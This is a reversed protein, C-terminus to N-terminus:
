KRAKRLIIRGGDTVVPPLIKKLVNRVLRGNRRERTQRWYNDLAQSQVRRESIVFEYNHLIAEFVASSEGKPAAAMRRDFEKGLDLSHQTCFTLLYEVSARKFQKVKDESSRNKDQGPHFRVFIEPTPNVVISGLRTMELLMTRDNDYRNGSRLVEQWAHDMLERPGIMSSYSCPVDILCAVATDSRTLTWETEFSPFGAGVWFERTPHCHLLTREGGVMFYASYYCSLQGKTAFHSVGNQIHGPSWWDDDHLIAVYDNVAEKLLLTFHHMADVPPDRFIYRIPLGEFEKCIAESSRNGANESVIIETVKGLATQRQVSKIATRLFGPRNATPILVTIM